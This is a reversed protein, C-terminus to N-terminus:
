GIVLRYNHYVQNSDNNVYPRDVVDYRRYRGVLFLNKRDEKRGVVFQRGLWMDQYNYSYQATKFSSDVQLEQENTTIFGNEINFAYKTFQNVFGRGVSGVLETGRYSNRYRTSVDVFSGFINRAKYWPTYDNSPS